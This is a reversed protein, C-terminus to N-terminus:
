MDWKCYGSQTAHLCKFCKWERGCRRRSLMDRQLM